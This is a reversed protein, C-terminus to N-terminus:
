VHMYINLLKGNILSLSFFGKLLLHVAIFSQNYMYHYGIKKM